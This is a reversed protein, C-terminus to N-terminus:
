WCTAEAIQTKLLSRFAVQMTDQPERRSLNLTLRPPILFFKSEKKNEFKFKRREESSDFDDFQGCLKFQRNEDLWASPEFEEESKLQGTYEPADDIRWGWVDKQAHRRICPGLLTVLSNLQIRPFNETRQRLRKHLLLKLWTKPTYLQQWHRLIRLNTQVMQWKNIYGPQLTLSTRDLCFLDATQQSPQPKM